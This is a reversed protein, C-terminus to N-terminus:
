QLPLTEIKLEKWLRDFESQYEPTGSVFGKAHLEKAIAEQAEVKTSYGCAAVRPPQTGTGPQRREEALVDMKKLMDTLLEAATTPNLMNNPNNLITGDKHFVLAGGEDFAPAYDKKVTEVVNRKIIAKVSEPLEEKLNIGSLARSLEGDIRIGELEGKHRKKAEEYEQSLSSYKEKTDKLENKLEGIKREYEGSGGGEAVAKELRAKEKELAAIKATYGDSRGALEKAARELYNYTKEDGDRAVGTVTAITDDMQRYIEGIRKGIVTNEDNKSLTEIAQLQEDTLGQLVENSKLTESTLM